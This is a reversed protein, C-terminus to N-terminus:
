NNKINKIFDSLTPLIMIFIFIILVIILLVQVDKSIKITNKKKKEVQDMNSIYTTTKETQMDYIPEEKYFKETVDLTQENKQIDNIVPPVPTVVTQKNLNSQQVVTDNNSVNILNQLGMSNDIGGNNNINVNTVDDAKITPNNLSTNFNTTARYPKVDAISEKKIEFNDNLKKLLEERENM